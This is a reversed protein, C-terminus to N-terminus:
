AGSSISAPNGAALNPLMGIQQYLAMFDFSNWAEIVKGDRVRIITIGSFQIPKNTPAVGLHPGKHTGTVHCHACAYEGETVTRLIEVHIDPFTARFTHFFPRFADPGAIASGDAALGHSLGDPAFLREITEEKGQNWLEDFWM